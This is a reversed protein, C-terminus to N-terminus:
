KCFDIIIADLGRDSILKFTGELHSCGVVAIIIKKDQYHIIRNMAVDADINIPLGQSVNSQEIIDFYEIIKTSFHYNRKDIIISNWYDNLIFDLTHHMIKTYHNYKKPSILTNKKQLLEQLKYAEDLSLDYYTIIIDYLTLNPLPIFSDFILTKNLNTELLSIMEKYQPFNNFFTKKSIDKFFTKFNYITSFFEVFNRTTNRVLTDNTEIGFIQTRKYLNEYPDDAKCGLHLEDQYKLMHNILHKKCIKKRLKHISSNPNLHKEKPLNKNLSEIYKMLYLKNEEKVSVNITDYGELGLGYIPYHNILYEIIPIIRKRVDVNHKEGLLFVQKSSNQEYTYDLIVGQHHRLLEKFSSDNIPTVMIPVELTTSTASIPKTINILAGSAFLISNCYIYTLIIYIYKKTM